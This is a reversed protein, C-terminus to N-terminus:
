AYRIRPDIYGYLLDTLLNVLLVALAAVLVIAQIVPFDRNFISEVALRGLGPIAFVTEVVTAGGLLRAVRLGIITVVPILANRLAHRWVVGRAPLGKARATRVYDQGLVELMASRIQRTLGAAAETGLVVVPLILHRLNAGPDEFFPVFGSAPLVGLDLAFLYIMLMALWFSPMAVGALSALSAILDAATDHRVAAYVGLPLAIVLSLAM